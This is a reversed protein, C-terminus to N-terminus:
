APRMRRWGDQPCLPRSWAILTRPSSQPLQGSLASRPRPATLAPAVATPAISATNTLTSGCDADTTLSVVHAKSTSNGALTTPAYVLTQAPPVGVVSWGPDTNAGDISWNVGPSAPLSDTVVLGTAATAYVNTLTVTFGIQNPISVPSRM